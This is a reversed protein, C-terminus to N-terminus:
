SSGATIRLACSLSDVVYLLRGEAPLDRHVLASWFTLVDDSTTFCRFATLWSAGEQHRRNRSANQRDINLSRTSTQRYARFNLTPSSKEFNNETPKAPPHAKLTYCPYTRRTSQGFSGHPQTSAVPCSRREEGESMYRIGKFDRNNRADM